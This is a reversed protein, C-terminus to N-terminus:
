FGCVHPTAYVSLFVTPRERQADEQRPLVNCAAQLMVCLSHPLKSWVGQLSSYDWIVM